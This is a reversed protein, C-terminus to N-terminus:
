HAPRLRPEQANMLAAHLSRVALRACHSEAAPLTELYDIIHEPTIGRAEGLTKGEAMLVVTNACAVSYLCGNTEFSASIIRSDGVMLFIEVTDGCERSQKGYGDPTELSERKDARFAMELFRLSHNQWFEFSSNDM